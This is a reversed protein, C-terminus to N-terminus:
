SKVVQYKPLLGNSVGELDYGFARIMKLVWANPMRGWNGSRTLSLLKKEIEDWPGEELGEFVSLYSKYRSPELVTNQGELVDALQKGVSQKSHAQELAEAFKFCQDSVDSYQDIVTKLLSSLEVPDLKSISLASPCNKSSWKNKYGIVPMGSIAQEHAALYLGDYGRLDISAHCTRMVELVTERPVRHYLEIGGAQEDMKRFWDNNVDTATCVVLKCDVFNRLRAIAEVTVEHCNKSLRGAQESGKGFGRGLFVRFTGDLKRKIPTGADMPRSVFHANNRFRRAQAPTFFQKAQELRYDYDYRNSYVAPQALGSTMEMLDIYPAAEASVGPRDKTEEPIVAADYFHAMGVARDRCFGQDALLREWNVACAPNGSFIVDYFLPTKSPTLYRVMEPHMAGAWLMQNKPMSVEVYSMRPHTGFYDTPEYEWGENRNPLMVTVNVGVSCLANALDAQAIVGSSDRFKKFFLYPVLLVNM